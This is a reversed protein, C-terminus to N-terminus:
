ARGRLSRWARPLARILDSAILSEMAGEDAVVDGCRGHLHVGLCAAEFPSMRQAVLAAIIGTLVDGTGGTAMGPNGTENVFARAGDTVVTDAGKLVVICGHAVAFEVAHRERDAQVAMISKGTLVAFEGPHPTIITPPARKLLDTSRVLANLGDADLVMPKDSARVLTRAFEVTRPRRGLGPGFAVVTARHDLVAQLSSDTVGHLGVALPLTMMSPEFGAVIDAISGSCAVTVLGAGARLAAMGALAPAGAMGGSGGVVLVHGFDGKHADRRREPPLPVAMIRQVSAM